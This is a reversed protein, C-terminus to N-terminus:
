VSSVVLMPARELKGRDRRYSSYCIVMNNPHSLVVSIYEGRRTPLGPGFSSYPWGGVLAAPRLPSGGQAQADSDEPGDLSGILRNQIEEKGQEAEPPVAKADNSEGLELRCNGSCNFSWQYDCSAGAMSNSTGGNNAVDTASPM